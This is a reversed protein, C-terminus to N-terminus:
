LNKNRQREKERKKTEKDPMNCGNVFNAISIIKDWLQISVKLRLFGNFDWIYLRCTVVYKKKQEKENRKM